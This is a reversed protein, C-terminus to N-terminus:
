EIPSCIKLRWFLIAADLKSRPCLGWSRIEGLSHKLATQPSFYSAGDLSMACYMCTVMPYIQGWTRNEGRPIFNAAVVM